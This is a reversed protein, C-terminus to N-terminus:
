SEMWTLAAAQAPALVHVARGLLLAGLDLEPHSVCHLAVGLEAARYWQAFWVQMPFSVHKLAEYQCFTAVVNSVSVAAYNYPPVAPKM